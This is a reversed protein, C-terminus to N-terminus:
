SIDKENKLMYDRVYIGLIVGLIILLGGVIYLDRNFINVANNLELLDTCNVPCITMNGCEYPQNLIM